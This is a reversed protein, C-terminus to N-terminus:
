LLWLALSNSLNFLSANAIGGDFSWWIDAAQESIRISDIASTTRTTENVANFSILPRRGDQYVIAQERIEIVLQQLDGDDDIKDTIKAEVLDRSTTSTRVRVLMGPHLLAFQNLIANEGSEAETTMPQWEDSDLPLYSVIRGPITRRTYPDRRTFLQEIDLTEPDRVLDLRTYSDKLNATENLVAHVVRAHKMVNGNSGTGGSSKYRLRVYLGPVLMNYAKQFQVNGPPEMKWWVNAQQSNLRVAVLSNPYALLRGSKADIRDYRDRGIQITRLTDGGVTQIVFEKDNMDVVTAQVIQTKPAQLVTRKQETSASPLIGMADNLIRVKVVTGITIEDLISHTGKWEKLLTANWNPIIGLPKGDGDQDTSSLISILDGSSQMDTKIEVLKDLKATRSM